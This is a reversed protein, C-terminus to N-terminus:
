DLKPAEYSGWQNISFYSSAMNQARHDLGAVLDFNKSFKHNGYVEIFDSKGKYDARIFNKSLASTDQHLLRNNTNKNYNVHYSYKGGIALLLNKSTYDYDLGDRFVGEDIETKYRNSFLNANLTINQTLAQNVTLHLNDANYGDNDFNNNGTKDM